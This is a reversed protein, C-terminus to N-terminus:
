LVATTIHHHIHRAYDSVSTMKFPLKEVPVNMDVVCGRAYALKLCAFSQQLPDSSAHKQAELVAVPIQEVSFTTGKEKEFIKVVELPSLAEPGGLDIIKNLGAFNELSKVAFTAVDKVAIWSIKNVGDGFITAKAEPHDFGLSPSLWVDMFMAPRLITYNLTSHMLHQEVERKATQLPFEDDMEIVSIYVFQRVRAKAAANIVNIQGLHDVTEITDGEQRSHTSSVTSIVAEVGKMAKSLSAEDKIDAIVTEVGLEHLMEVRRPDSSARILGKVKKNAERLQKCIETGLMGTAGVVLISSNNLPTKM